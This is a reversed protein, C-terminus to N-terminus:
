ECVVLPEIKLQPPNFSISWSPNSSDTECSLLGDKSFYITLGLDKLGEDPKVGYEKLTKLLEKAPAGTVSLTMHCVKGPACDTPCPEVNPVVGLSSKGTQVIDKAMAPSIVLLCAAVTGLLLKRMCM